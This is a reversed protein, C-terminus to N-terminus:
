DLFSDYQKDVKVFMKYLIYEALEAVLFSTAISLTLFLFGWIDEKILDSRETCELFYLM